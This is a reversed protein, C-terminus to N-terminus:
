TRLWLLPLLMAQYKWFKGELIKRTQLTRARALIRPQPSYCLEDVWCLNGLTISLNISKYIFVLCIYIYISTKLYISPHKSLYM